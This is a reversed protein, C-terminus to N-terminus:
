VAEGGWIIVRSWYFQFLQCFMELFNITPLNIISWTSYFLNNLLIFIWYPHMINFNKSPIFLITQICLPSNLMWGLAKYQYLLVCNVCQHIINSLQCWSINLSYIAHSLICQEVAYFQSRCATSRDIRIAM